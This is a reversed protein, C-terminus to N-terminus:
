HNGNGLGPTSYTAPEPIDKLDKERTRTTKEAIEQHINHTALGQRDEGYIDIKHTNLIDEFKKLEEPSPQYTTDCDIKKAKCYMVMAEMLRPPINGTFDLSLRRNNVSSLHDEIATAAWKVYDKDELYPLDDKNFMLQTEHSHKRRRQISAVCVKKKSDPNNEDPKSSYLETQSVRVDKGSFTDSAKSSITAREVDSDSGSNLFQKVLRTVQEESPDILIKCRTSFSAIKEISREPKKATFRFLTRNLEQRCQNLEFIRQTFENEKEKQQFYYQKVLLLYGEAADLQDL